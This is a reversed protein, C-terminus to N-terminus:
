RLSLGISLQLWYKRNLRIVGHQEEEPRRIGGALLGRFPPVTTMSINEILIAIDGTDSQNGSLHRINTVGNLGQCLKLRRVNSIDEYILVRVNRPFADFVEGVRRRDKEGKIGLSEATIQDFVRSVPKGYLEAMASACGTIIATKRKQSIVPLFLFGDGTNSFALAIDAACLLAKLKFTHGGIYLRETVRDKSFKNADEANVNVVLLNKYPLTECAYSENYAIMSEMDPIKQVFESFTEEEKFDQKSVDAIM